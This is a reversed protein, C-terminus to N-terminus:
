FLATPFLYAKTMGARSVPWDINLGPAEENLHWRVHFLVPGVTAADLEVNIIESCNAYGIHGCRPPSSSLKSKLTGSNLRCSDQMVKVPPASHAPMVGEHIDLDRLIPLSLFYYYYVQRKQHMPHFDSYLPKPCTQLHTDKNKGLALCYQSLHWHFEVTRLPNKNWYSSCNRTASLCCTKLDADTAGKLCKRLAWPFSFIVPISQPTM